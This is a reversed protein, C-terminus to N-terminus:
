ILKQIEGRNRSMITEFTGSELITGHQILIINNCGTSFSISNAVLIRAEKALLGSPGIVHDALLEDSLDSRLCNPALGGYIHRAVHADVAALVDDLLVWTRVLM